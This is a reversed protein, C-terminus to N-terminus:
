PSPPSNTVMEEIEFNHYTKGTMLRSKLTRKDIGIGKCLTVRSDYLRETGDRLDKVKFCRRPIFPTTKYREPWVADTKTRFLWGRRATLAEDLIGSRVTSENVGTARSLEKVFNTEVTQGTVLNKAEFPGIVPKNLTCPTDHWPTNDSQLKVEYRNSVFCPLPHGGMSPSAYRLRINTRTGVARAFEALSSYNTIVGTRIERVKCSKNDNRLGNDVAHRNNASSTVWELNKLEYNLKDGDKHNVFCKTNPQENRIFTRALLIHLSVSRWPDSRYTKDPDRINVYPYGYPGILPKLLRGSKVSKVRGDKTIAHTTFGPILYFGDGVHVLNRFFMFNKCKLGLVRNTCEVFVINRSSVLSVDVEYHAMLGLWKRSYSNLRGDVVINLDQGDSPHERGEFVFSGDYKFEYRKDFPLPKYM